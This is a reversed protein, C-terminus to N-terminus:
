GCPGALSSPVKISRRIWSGVSLRVALPLRRTRTGEEVRVHLAPDLPKGCELCLPQHKLIVSPWLAFDTKSDATRAHIGSSVVLGYQLQRVFFVYDGIADQDLGESESVDEKLEHWLHDLLLSYAAMHGSEGWMKAAILLAMDRIYVAVRRQIAPPCMIYLSLGLIELNRRFLQLGFTGIAQRAEYTKAITDPSDVYLYASDSQGMVFEIIARACEVRESLGVEQDLQEIVSHLSQVSLDM